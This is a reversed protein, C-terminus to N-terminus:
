KDGDTTEVVMQGHILNDKEAEADEVITYSGTFQEDSFGEFIITDASLTSLDTDKISKVFTFPNANKWVLIKSVYVNKIVSWSSQSKLKVYVNKVETSNVKLNDVINAM